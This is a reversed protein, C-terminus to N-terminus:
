KKNELEQVKEELTACMAKYNNYVKGIELNEINM